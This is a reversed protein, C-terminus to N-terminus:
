MSLALASESLFRDCLGQKACACCLTIVFLMNNNVSACFLLVQTSAASIYVSSIDEM